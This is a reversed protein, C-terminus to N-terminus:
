ITTISAMENQRIAKLHNKQKETLEQKQLLMDVHVLLPVLSDTNVAPLQVDNAQKKRKKELEALLAKEQRIEKDKFLKDEELVKIKDLLIRNMETSLIALHAKEKLNYEQNKERIKEVNIKPKAGAMTQFQKVRVRKTKKQNLVVRNHFQVSIKELSEYDDIINKVDSYRM